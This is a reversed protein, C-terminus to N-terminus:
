NLASDVLDYWTSSGRLSTVLQPLLLNHGREFNGGQQCHQQQPSSPPWKGPFALAPEAAVALQDVDLRSGSVASHNNTQDAMLALRSIFKVGSECFMDAM